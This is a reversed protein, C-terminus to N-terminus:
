TPPPRQSRHEVGQAYYGHTEHFLSLEGIAGDVQDAKSADPDDRFALDAEVSMTAEEPLCDEDYTALISQSGLILIDGDGTITAAARIVHALQEANM